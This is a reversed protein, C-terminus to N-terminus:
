TPVVQILAASEDLWMVVNEDADNEIPYSSLLKDWQKSQKETWSRMTLMASLQKHIKQQEATKDVM